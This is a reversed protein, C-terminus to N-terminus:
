HLEPRRAGTLVTAVGLGLYVCGAFYRRAGLFVPKRGLWNGFKGALLAYCLDSCAGVAILVAGLFFIQGAVAGRHLEVFQPLFAAIFLTTKPNLLNVLFGNYYVSGLSRAAVPKAEASAGDRSWLTKVGLYILYAAGAYKVLNFAMASSLLLASLGLAAASVHVVTASMVGLCSVVGAMPGQQLSRTAIYFTTPGPMVVLATAAAIFISITSWQPM